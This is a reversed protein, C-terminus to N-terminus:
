NREGDVDCPREEGTMLKLGFDESSGVGLYTFSEKPLGHM